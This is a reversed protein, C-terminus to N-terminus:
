VMASAPKAASFRIGATRCFAATAQRSCKKAIGTQLEANPWHPMQGVGKRASKTIEANQGPPAANRAAQARRKDRSGICRHNIKELSM